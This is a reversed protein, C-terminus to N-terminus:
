KKTKDDRAAARGLMHAGIPATLMLFLIIAVVRVTVETEGYFIAGGILILSSGLTGAKTSAHMRTLVDPLRLVGIAAILAFFGGLLFFASIIIESM